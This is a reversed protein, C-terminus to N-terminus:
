ISNVSRKLCLNIAYLVNLTRKKFLSQIQFLDVEGKGPVNGTIPLMVMTYVTWSFLFRWHLSTIIKGLLSYWTLHFILCFCIEEYNGLKWCHSEHFFRSIVRFVCEFLTFLIIFCIWSSIKRKIVKCQNSLESTSIFLVLHVNPSPKNSLNNSM